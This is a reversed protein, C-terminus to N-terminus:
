FISISLDMKLCSGRCLIFENLKRSMLTIAIRKDCIGEATQMQVASFFCVQIISGHLRGSERTIPTKSKRHLIGNSLYSSKCFVNWHVYIPFCKNCRVSGRDRTHQIQFRPLGGYAMRMRM